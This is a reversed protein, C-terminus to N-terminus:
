AKLFVAPSVNFFKGLRVMNEKTLTRVGTLVASITSQPIKTDRALKSQSLDNARMLERLVDAESADSIRVHEEEYSEVLDSLVNLYNQAGEDLDTALLHEIVEEAEALHDDDQIWVLPFKRVLEFYTNPMTRTPKKAAM